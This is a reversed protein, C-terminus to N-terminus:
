IGFCFVHSTTVHPIETKGMVRQVFIYAEIAPVALAGPRAKSSEFLPAKCAKCYTKM